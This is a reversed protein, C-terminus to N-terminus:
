RENDVDLVHRVFQPGRGNDLHRVALVEVHGTSSFTYVHYGMADRLDHGKKAISPVGIVELRGLRRREQLHLHGHILTAGRAELARLLKGFGVLGRSYQRLASGHVPLPPHHLAVVPWLGGNEEADLIELLRALQRPCIRGASRIGGRAVATDLGLLLIGGLRQVLPYEGNEFFGQPLWDTMVQEFLRQKDASPVYRDHNGPLVMTKDPSFGADHLIRSSRLLESELALNSLDGSIVVADAPEAAASRLLTACADGDIHRGRLLKLNVLGLLRKNFIQSWPVPEILPLHLDSLHVIRVDKM